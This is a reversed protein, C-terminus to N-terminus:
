RYTARHCHNLRGPVIETLRIENGVNWWWYRFVFDNSKLAARTSDASDRKGTTPRDDNSRAPRNSLVDRHREGFAGKQIHSHIQTSTPRRVRVEIWRKSIGDAQEETINSSQLYEKILAYKADNTKVLEGVYQEYTPWFREAETDSLKMNAAVVQKRTSRLDSRLM